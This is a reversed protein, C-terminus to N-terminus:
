SSLSDLALAKYVNMMMDVTRKNVGNTVTAAAQELDTKKVCAEIQGVTYAAMMFLYIHHHVGLLASGGLSTPTLSKLKGAARADRIARLLDSWRIGVQPLGAQGENAKTATSPQYEQRVHYLLFCFILKIGRRPEMKKKKGSTAPDDDPGPLEQLPEEGYTMYHDLLPIVSEATPFMKVLLLRQLHFCRNLTAVNPSDKFEEVAAQYETMDKDLEASTLGAIVKPLDAKMAKIADSFTDPHNSLVDLGTLLNCSTRLQMKCIQESGAGTKALVYDETFTFVGCVETWTPTALADFFAM